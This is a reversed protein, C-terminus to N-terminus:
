FRDATNHKTLLLLFVMEKYMCLINIYFKYKFIEDCLKIAKYIKLFYLSSVLFFTMCRIIFLLEEVFSGMDVCHRVFGVEGPAASM